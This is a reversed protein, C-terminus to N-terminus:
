IECSSAFSSAYFYKPCSILIPLSNLNSGPTISLVQILLQQAIPSLALKKSGNSADLIPVLM